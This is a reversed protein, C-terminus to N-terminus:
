IRVAASGRVRDEFRDYLDYLAERIDGSHRRYATEIDAPLIQGHSDPVLAVIAALLAPSSGCSAFTPLRGASHTTVLLRCGRWRALMRAARDSGFRMREWGDICVLGNRRARGVTTLARWADATRAICVRAVQCGATTAERAVATLLTTKGHGHPGVIAAIGGAAPLSGLLRAVDLPRGDVDLPPLAGPRIFRTAFPNTPLRHPAAPPTM